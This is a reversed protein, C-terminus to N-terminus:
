PKDLLALVEDRELLSDHNYWGPLNEVVTRLRAREATRGQAFGFALVRVGHDALAQRAVPVAARHGAGYGLLYSCFGGIVVVALTMLVLM